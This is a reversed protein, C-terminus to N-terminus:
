KRSLLRSPEHLDNKGVDNNNNDLRDHSFPTHLSPLLDLLAEWALTMGAMDLRQQQVGVEGRAVEM